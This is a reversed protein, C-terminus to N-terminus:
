RDYRFSLANEVLKRMRDHCTADVSEEFASVKGGHYFMSKVENFDISVVKNDSLMIRIMLKKVNAYETPTNGVKCIEDVLAITEASLEKIYEKKM